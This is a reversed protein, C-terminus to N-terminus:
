RIDTVPTGEILWFRGTPRDIVWGDRSALSAPGQMQANQVGRDM